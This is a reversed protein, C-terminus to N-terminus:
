DEDSLQGMRSMQIKLRNLYVQIAKQDPPATENEEAEKDKEFAIKHMGLYQRLM